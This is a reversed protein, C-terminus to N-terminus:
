FIVAFSASACPFRVRRGVRCSGAWRIQLGRFGGSEVRKGAGAIKVGMGLGNPFRGDWNPMRLNVVL